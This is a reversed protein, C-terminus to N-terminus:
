GLIMRMVVSLTADVMAVFFAMIFTTAIVLITSQLLENRSPWTVKNLEQKTEQIFGGFKGLM